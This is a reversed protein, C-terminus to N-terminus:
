KTKNKRFSFLYKGLLYVAPDSLVAAALVVDYKNDVM